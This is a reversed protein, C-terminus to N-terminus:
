AGPARVVGGSATPDDRPPLTDTVSRRGVHYHVIFQASEPSTRPFGRAVLETEIASSILRAQADEPVVAGETRALGDGDPPSWAWGSGAAISM